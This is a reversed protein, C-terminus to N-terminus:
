YNYNKNPCFLFINKNHSYIQNHSLYNILPQCQLFVTNHERTGLWSRGLFSTYARISLQFGKEDGYIYIYLYIRDSASSVKNIVVPANIRNITNRYLSKCTCPPHSRPNIDQSHKHTPVKKEM